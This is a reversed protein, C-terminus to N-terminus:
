YFDWHLVISIPKGKDLDVVAPKKTPKKTAPQTQRVPQTQQTRKEATKEKPDAAAPEKAKDSNGRKHKIPKIPIGEETNAPNQNVKKRNRYIM